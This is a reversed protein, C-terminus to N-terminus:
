AAPKAAANDDRPRFLIRDIRSREVDVAEFYHGHWTFHQGVKPVAGVQQLVFGGLTHFVQLAQREAPALQFYDAFATFSLQADVLYTGDDRRVIDTSTPGADPDTVLTGLLDYLTLLGLVSGFEDVVLAHHRHSQQFLHLAHYAKTTASLYLAEKSLERLRGLQQDFNDSLLEESRVTGLVHDLSGDAVPYVSLKHGLVVQRLTAPDATADLWVINPRSTMLQSVQQDGLRFANQVIDQEIDQVVGASAGEQVLAHIEEETVQSEQPKINLLKFLANSSVNLLWIAPTALRALWRMPGVVLKAVGEPNALGIRKPLLEGVVVSLYTILGVVLVTAITSSYPVLAPVRAVLGQVSQNLRAEGFAGTMIGVLTIGIQVAALFQNPSQALQLAAAARENGAAAEAELRSKRASVLAIESLSFVGNLVILLLILLLAM